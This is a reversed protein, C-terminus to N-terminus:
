PCLKYTSERTTNPDTIAARNTVIVPALAGRLDATPDREAARERDYRGV